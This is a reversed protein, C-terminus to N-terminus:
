LTMAPTIIGGINLELLGYRFGSEDPSREGKVLEAHCFYDAFGNTSKGRQLM